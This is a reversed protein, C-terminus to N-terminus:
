RSCLPSTSKDLFFSFFPVSVALYEIKKSALRILNQVQVPTDDPLSLETTLSAPIVVAFKLESNGLSKLAANIKSDKSPKINQAWEKVASESDEQDENSCALLFFGGHAVLPTDVINDKTDEDDDPLRSTLYEKLEEVTKNNNPFTLVASVEASILQMDVVIAFEKIGFKETLTTWHPRIQTMLKEVEKAYESLTAKLSTEDFSLAKLTREFGELSKKEWQELETNRLDLHGLLVTNETILPSFTEQGVVPLSAFFLFLAVVNSLKKM